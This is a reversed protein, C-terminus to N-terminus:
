IPYRAPRACSTSRRYAGFRVDDRDVLVPAHAAPLRFRRAPPNTVVDDVGLLGNAAHHELWERM